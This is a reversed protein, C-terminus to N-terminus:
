QGSGTCVFTGKQTQPNAKKLAQNEAVIDNHKTEM